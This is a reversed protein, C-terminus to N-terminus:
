EYQCKIRSVKGCGCQVEIMSIVQGDRIVRIRSQAAATNSEGNPIPQSVMSEAQANKIIKSSGSSKANM